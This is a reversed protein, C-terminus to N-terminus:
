GEIRLAYKLMLERVQKVQYAKAKGGGIPQINVIEEVGAKSYIFHGGRVREEFHMARLVRQLDAFRLNADSQGRLIAEFVKRLSAM